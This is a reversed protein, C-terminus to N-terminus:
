VQETVILTKAEAIGDEIEQALYRLFDPTLTNGCLNLTVSNGYSELTIAQNLIIGTDLGAAYDGNDFISTKIVLDEGGNNHPPVETSITLIPKNM